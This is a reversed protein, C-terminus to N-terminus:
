HKITQRKKILNHGFDRYDVSFYWYNHSSADFAMFGKSQDEATIRSDYDHSGLRLMSGGVLQVLRTVYRFYKPLGPQELKRTTYNAENYRYLIPVCFILGLLLQMISILM